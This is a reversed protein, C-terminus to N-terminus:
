RTAGSWRAMQRPGPLFWVTRVILFQWCKRCRMSLWRTQVCGGAHGRGAYRLSRARHPRATGSMAAGLSHDATTLAFTPIRLPTTLRRIRPVSARADTRFRITLCTPTESPM